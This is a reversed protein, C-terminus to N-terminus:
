RPDDDIMSRCARRRILRLARSPWARAVVELSRGALVEKFFALADRFAANVGGNHTVGPYTKWVVDNGAGCLAAVAASQRLPPLVSDALGTGLLVPVPLGPKM